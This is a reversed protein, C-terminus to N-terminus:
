EMRRIMASSSAGALGRVASGGGATATGGRGDAGGAVGAAAGRGAGAGGRARGGSGAGAAPSAIYLAGADRPRAASGAGSTNSRVSAMVADIGGSASQNRVVLPRESRINS